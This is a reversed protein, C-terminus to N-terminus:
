KKDNSQQTHGTHQQSGGASMRQSFLQNLTLRGAKPLGSYEIMKDM